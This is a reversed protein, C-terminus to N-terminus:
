LIQQFLDCSFMFRAPQFTISRGHRVIKAGIKEPRNRLTTMSWHSATEPLTLTRLFNALNYALAHLQLGVANAVFRRCFLRAMNTVIFEVRPYLEGPHWEVKAVVRRPKSWSAAQYTFSSYYRSSGEQAGHTESVSSNMDLVITTQPRRAHMRDIWAELLDVLAAANVESTLWDTEFRGMQSTSSTQRDLSTRDVVAHVTSDFALRDTDDVDEYEALRDFVSQRFLGTPLHLTNKGRRCESLAAGALDSLGLADDLERYALM